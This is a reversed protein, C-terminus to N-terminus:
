IMKTFTFLHLCNLKEQLIQEKMSKYLMIQIKLAKATNQEVNQSMDKIRRHIADNSLPIKYVDIDESGGIM